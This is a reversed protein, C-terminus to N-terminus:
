GQPNDSRQVDSVPASADGHMERLHIFQDVAGGTVGLGRRAAVYFEDRTRDL